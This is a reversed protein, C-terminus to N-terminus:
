AKREAENKCEFQTSRNHFSGFSADLSRLCCFLCRGQNSNATYTESDDFHVDGGIGLGPFYAHALTGGPGDFAAGDGHEPNSHFSIEIDASSSTETFTLPSEDSWLQVFVCVCVTRPANLSWHLVHSICTRACARKLADDVATLLMSSRAFSVISENCHGCTILFTVACDAARLNISRLNWSGGWSFDVRYNLRSSWVYLYIDISM